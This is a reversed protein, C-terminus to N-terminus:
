NPILLVEIQDGDAAAATLARGIAVGTSRTAVKTVTAAVEVLAGAAIPGSAIMITTGLADVSVREGAVAPLIAAGLANGGATCPAGSAQVPQFQAITATATVGLRLINIASVAM